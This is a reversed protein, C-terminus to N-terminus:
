RSDDGIDRRQDGAPVAPDDQLLASICAARAHTPRQVWVPNHSATVVDADIRCCRDSRPGNRRATWGTSRDNSHGYDDFFISNDYINQTM